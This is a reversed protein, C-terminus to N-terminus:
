GLWRFARRNGELTDPTERTHASAELSIYSRQKKLPDM